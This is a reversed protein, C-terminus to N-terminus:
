HDYQYGFYKHAIDELGKESKYYELNKETQETETQYYEIKEKLDKEIHNLTVLEVIQYICVVTLIAILIIVNVTIAAVFRNRKEETM